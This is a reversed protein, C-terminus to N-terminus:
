MNKVHPTLSSLLCLLASLDQVARGGHGSLLKTEPLALLTLLDAQPTAKGRCGEDAM